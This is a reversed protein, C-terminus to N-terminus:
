WTKEMDKGGFSHDRDTFNSTAGPDFRCMRDKGRWRRILGVPTVVVFFVLSLLLANSVVGMVRSLRNWFWDIKGSLWSSFVGVLGIGLACYLFGKNRSLVYVLLFGVTIVLMTEKSKYNKPMDEM